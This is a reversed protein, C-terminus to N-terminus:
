RMEVFSHNESPGHQSLNAGCHCMPDCLTDANGELPVGCVDCGYVANEEATVTDRPDEIVSVKEPEDIDPITSVSTKTLKIWKHHPLQSM